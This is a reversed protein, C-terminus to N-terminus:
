GGRSRGRPKAGTSRKARARKPTGYLYHDHEAALDAVGMPVALESLRFAADSAAAPKPRRAKSGGTSVPQVRVETGDPLEAGAELEVKGNRVTGKFTM